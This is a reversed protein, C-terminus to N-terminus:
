PCHRIGREGSCAGRFPSTCNVRATRTSESICWTIEPIYVKASRKFIQRQSARAGASVEHPPLVLETHMETADIAM